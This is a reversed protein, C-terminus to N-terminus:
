DLVWLRSSTVQRFFSLSFALTSRRGIASLRPRYTNGASECHAVREEREGSERKVRAVVRSASQRQARSRMELEVRASEDCRNAIMGMAELAECGGNHM